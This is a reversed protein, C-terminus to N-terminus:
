GFFLSPWNCSSGKSINEKNEFESLQPEKTQNTKKIRISKTRGDFVAQKRKDHKEKISKAPVGAM